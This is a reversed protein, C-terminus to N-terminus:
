FSTLSAHFSPFQNLLVLLLYKGEEKKYWIGEEQYGLIVIPVGGEGEM